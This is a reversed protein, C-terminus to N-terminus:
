FKRTFTDAKCKDNEIVDTGDRFANSGKRKVLVLMHDIPYETYRYSSLKHINQDILGKIGGVVLAATGAIVVGPLFATAGFLLGGVGLGSAGALMKTITTANRDKKVRKKIVPFLNADTLIIVTREENLAMQLEDLNGAYRPYISAM